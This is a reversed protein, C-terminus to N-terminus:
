PLTYPKLKEWLEPISHEFSEKRISDLGKTYTMFKPLLNSLDESQMHAEYASLIEKVHIITAEAWEKELYLHANEEMWVNCEAYLESIWEKIPAPLIKTSLFQPNHLPHCNLIPMGLFRQVKNFKNKVVWKMLEPLHHANYVQVTTAIWCFINDPSQDIKKLNNFINEFKSPHRIYDNVRGVGDISAGINIRKFHSWLAWAKEPIVTINSNYEVTIKHAINMEICKELLTFHQDILLPEGGVTHIQEVNQLRQFMQEWFGPNEYWRYMETDEVLKSGERILNIKKNGDNFSTQGWLEAHDEYWFSSDTPSCSRCKLNCKNGFRMDLYIPMTSVAGDISTIAKADEITFQHSWNESEVKRRSRVGQAEERDCRACIPNTKNELMSLRLSKLDESNYAEALNDVGANYVSGNAKHLLGKSVSSHSNSCARLNGDNRIAQIIWPLPCFKETM